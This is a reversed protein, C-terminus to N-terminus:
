QWSTKGKSLNEAAWLPQLNSFHVAELLQKRDALDFSALPKIHDIHWGERSHNAWTMGPKFRAELHIQLEPISCGLDRVASGTKFNGKLADHLRGRLLRALRYQPNRKCREAIREMARRPNAAYYKRDNERCKEPHAARYKRSAERCEKPHAINYKRSAERPKEPNAARWKCSAEKQKEPNAAYWKRGYERFKEPHTCRYKRMYAARCTKCERSAAHFADLMKEVGCKTCRKTIAASLM